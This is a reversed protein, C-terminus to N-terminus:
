ECSPSLNRTFRVRSFNSNRHSSRNARVISVTRLADFGYRHFGRAVEVTASGVVHPM